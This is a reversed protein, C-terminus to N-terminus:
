WQVLVRLPESYQANLYVNLPMFTSPQYNPRILAPMSEGNYIVFTAIWPGKLQSCLNQSAEITRESDSGAHTYTIPIAIDRCPDTWLSDTIVTQPAKRDFQATIAKHNPLTQLVAQCHSADMEYYYKATGTQINSACSAFLVLSLFFLIYKM